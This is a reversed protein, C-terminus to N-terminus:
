RFVCVVCRGAINVWHNGLSECEERKNRKGDWGSMQGLIPVLKSQGPTLLQLIGTGITASGTSSGGATRKDRRGTANGVGLLVPEGMADRRRVNTATGPITTVSSSISPMDNYEEGSTPIGLFACRTLSTKYLSLAWLKPASVSVPTVFTLISMSSPCPSPRAVPFPVPCSLSWVPTSLAPPPPIPIPTPMGGVGVSGALPLASSSRAVFAQASGPGTACVVLATIWSTTVIMPCRARRGAASPRRM